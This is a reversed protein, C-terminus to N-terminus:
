KKVLAELFNVLIHIKDGLFLQNHPVLTFIVRNQDVVLFTHLVPLGEAVPGLTSVDIHQGFISINAFHADANFIVQDVANSFVKSKDDHPLCILL